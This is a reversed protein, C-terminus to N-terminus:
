QKSLTWTGVCGDSRRFSGSGRRGSIRGRVTASLGSGAWIGSVAGSSSVRGSFGDSAMNGGSIVVVATTRDSCTRGFSASNWLGDFNGGGGGGGGGHRAKPAARESRSTSRGSGSDQDGSISKNNKGISGGTSGQASAAPVHLLLALAAAVGLLAGRMAMTTTMSVRM